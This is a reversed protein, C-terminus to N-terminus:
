PPDADRDIDMNEPIANPGVAVMGTADAAGPNKGPRSGSQPYKPEGTSPPQMKRSVLRYWSDPLEQCGRGTSFCDDDRV